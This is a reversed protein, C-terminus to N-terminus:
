MNALLETTLYVSFNSVTTFKRYWRFMTYYDQPRSHMCMINHGIGIIYSLKTKDPGGWFILIFFVNRICQYLERWALVFSFSVVEYFQLWILRVTYIPVNLLWIICCVEPLSLWWTQCFVFLYCLSM